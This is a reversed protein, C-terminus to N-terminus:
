QLIFASQAGFHLKWHFSKSSLTGNFEFHFDLFSIEIIFHGAKAATSKLAPIIQPSRCCFVVLVGVVERWSPSPSPCWNGGVLRVRQCTNVSTWEKRSSRLNQSHTLLPQLECVASLLATDPYGCFFSTPSLHCESIVFVFYHLFDYLIHIVSLANGHFGKIVRRCFNRPALREREQSFSWILYNSNENAGRRRIRRQNNHVDLDDIVDFNKHDEFYDLYKKQELTEFAKSLLNNLAELFNPSLLAIVGAWFFWLNLKFTSQHFPAPDLLDGFISNEIKEM